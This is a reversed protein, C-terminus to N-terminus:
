DEKFWIWNRSYFWEVFEQREEEDQSLRELAYEYADKEPVFTDTTIELYGPGNLKDEEEGESEDRDFLSPLVMPSELINM